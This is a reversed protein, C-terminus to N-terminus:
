KQENGIINGNADTIIGYEIKAKSRKQEQAELVSRVAGTIAADKDGYVLPMSSLDLTQGGQTVVQTVIQQGGSGSGGKAGSSGRGM